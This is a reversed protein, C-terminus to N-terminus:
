IGNVVKADIQLESHHWFFIGLNLAKIVCHGVPFVFSNEQQNEKAKKKPQLVEVSWQSIIGINDNWYGARAFCGHHSSSRRHPLPKM